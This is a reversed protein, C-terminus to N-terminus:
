GYLFCNLESAPEWALKFGCLFSDMSCEETILSQADMIRLVPKREPTEPREILQQHCNEIEQGTEAMPLPTYLRNYLLKLMDSM